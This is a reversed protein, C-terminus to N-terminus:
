ALGGRPGFIATGIRVLTAGEEIAVEFDHSMGMSLEELALGTRDRWRDRLARLERFFPVAKEPEPTFPPMTMLGAVDVNMCSQSAELVDPVAGPDLGFKSAEGSVNVQLLVKQTKGEERGHRDV